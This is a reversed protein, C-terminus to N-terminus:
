VVSAFSRYCSGWFYCNVEMKGAQFIITKSHEQLHERSSAVHVDLKTRMKKKYQIFSSEVCLLQWIIRWRPFFCFLFCYILTVCPLSLISFVPFNIRFKKLHVLKWTAEKDVTFRTVMSSETSSNLYKLYVSVEILLQVGLLFTWWRSWCSMRAACLSVSRIWISAIKVGFINSCFLHLFRHWFCM